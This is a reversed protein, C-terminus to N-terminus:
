GPAAAAWPGARADVGRRDLHTLIRRIVTPETIFAV